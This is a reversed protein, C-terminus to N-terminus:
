SPDQTPRNEEMDALFRSTDPPAHPTHQEEKNSEEVFGQKKRLQYIAEEEDPTMEYSGFEPQNIEIAPKEDGKKEEKAYFADKYTDRYQEITESILKTPPPLLAHLISTTVAQQALSPDEPKQESSTSNETAVDDRGRRRRMNRRRDRRKDTRADQSAADSSAAPTEAEETRPQPQERPPARMPAERGGGIKISKDIGVNKLVLRPERVEVIEYDSVPVLFTKPRELSRFFFSHGFSVVQVADVFFEEQGAAHSSRVVLKCGEKPTIVTEIIPERTFDM